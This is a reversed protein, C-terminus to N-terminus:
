RARIRSAIIFVELAAWLGLLPLLWWAHPGLHQVAHQALDPLTGKTLGKLLGLIPHPRTAVRGFTRAWDLGPKGKRAAALIAAEAPADANRLLPLAADGASHLVLRAAPGQREAFSALIRLDAPNDAHRLLRLAGGPSMARALSGVDSCLASASATDGSRVIRLLAAELPKSIAGAKKATKLLSPVWDIEPALTTALGAASLAIILEDPEGGASVHAGQIFLDRVDGLIFFDAGVAGLLRELSDGRGTLAGLGVERAKRIWSAQEAALRDRETLLSAHPEGQLADLGADALAIAEALRGQAGLTRVEAVLDVDPLAALRLRALHASRDAALLALLVCAVLLRAFPWRCRVLRALLNM